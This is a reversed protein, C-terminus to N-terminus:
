WYLGVACLNWALAPACGEVQKNEGLLMCLHDFLCGTGGNDSVMGFLLMFGWCACASSLNRIVISCTPMAVFRLVVAQQDPLLMDLLVQGHCGLGRSQIGPGMHSGAHWACICVSDSGTLRPRICM